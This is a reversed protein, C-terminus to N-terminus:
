LATKTFVLEEKGQLYGYEDHTIKIKFSTEGFECEGEILTIKKQTGTLTNRQWGSIFVLNTGGIFTVEIKITEDEIVWEGKPYLLDEDNAPDVVFWIDAEQCEWKAYGYDIPRKGYYWDYNCGTFFCIFIIAIILIQLPKKM